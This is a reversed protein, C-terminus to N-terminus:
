KNIYKKVPILPQEQYYSYMRKELTEIFSNPPTGSLNPNFSSFSTDLAYIDREQCKLLNENSITKKLPLNKKTILGSSNNLSISLM